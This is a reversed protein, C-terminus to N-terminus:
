WLNSTFGTHCGRHNIAGAAHIQYPGGDLPRRTSTSQTYTGGNGPVHTTLPWFCQNWWHDVGPDQAVVPLDAKEDVWGFSSWMAEPADWPIPLLQVLRHSPCFSSPCCVSLSILCPTWLLPLHGWDTDSRSGTWWDAGLQRLGSTYPSEDGLFSKVRPASGEAASGPVPM